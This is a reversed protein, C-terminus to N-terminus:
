IKNKGRAEELKWVIDAINQAYSLNLKFSKLSLADYLVAKYHDVLRDVEFPINKHNLGSLDTIAQSTHNINISEREYEIQTTKLNFPTDWRISIFQEVKSKSSLIQYELKAEFCDQTDSLINIDVVMMPDKCIKLFICIINYISDWFPGGLHGKNFNLYPDCFLHSVRNKFSSQWLIPSPLISLEKGFAAHFSFYIGDNESAFKLIKQHVSWSIAIPKEVIVLNSKKSLELMVEYHSDPPTAVIALDYFLEKNKEFFLYKDPIEILPNNDEIHIQIDNFTAELAATYAKGAHGFGIILAKM